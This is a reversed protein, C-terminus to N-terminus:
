MCQKCAPIRGNQIFLEKSKFNEAKPIWSSPELSWPYVSAVTSSPLGIVSNLNEQHLLLLQKQNILSQIEFQLECAIELPLQKMQDSISKAFADIGDEDTLFISLSSLSSRNKRSM